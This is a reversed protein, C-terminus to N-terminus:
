INCLYKGSVLNSTDINPVRTDTVEVDNIKTIYKRLALDFIKEIEHTNTITYGAIASGETTATYGSVAEEEVTYEIVTGNEKAPLNDFTGKWSNSANLTLTKGEVKTGNALLNM